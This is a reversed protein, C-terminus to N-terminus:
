GVVAASCYCALHFLVGWRRAPFRYGSATPIAPVGIRVIVVEVHQGDGVGVRAHPHQASEVAVNGSLTNLRVSAPRTSAPSSCRRTWSSRRGVGPLVETSRDWDDRLELDVAVGEDGNPRGGHIPKGV